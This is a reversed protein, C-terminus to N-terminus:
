NALERARARAAVAQGDTAAVSAAQEYLARAADLDGRAAHAEALAIVADFRGPEFAIVRELLVAAQDAQGEDLLCEAHRTLADIDWPDTEVAAAAAECANAEMTPAPAEATQPDPAREDSTESAPINLTATDPGEASSPSVTESAASSFSAAAWDGDAAVASWSLRYGSETPTINLDNASDPLEIRVLQGFESPTAEVALIWRSRLPEIRRSFARPGAFELEIARGNVRSALLEPADDFGIFLEAPEGSGLERLDNIDAAAFAPLILGSLCFLIFRRM